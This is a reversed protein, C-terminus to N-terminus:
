VRGGTRAIARAIARSVELQARQNFAEEMQPLAQRLAPAIYAYRGGYHYELIVGVRSGARIYAGGGRRKKQTSRAYKRVKGIRKRTQGSRDTFGFNRKRMIRRAPRLGAACANSMGAYSLEDRWELIRRAMIDSNVPM